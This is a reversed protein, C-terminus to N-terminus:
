IPKNESVTADKFIIECDVSSEAANPYMVLHDSPLTKKEAIFEHLDIVLDYWTNMKLSDYAVTEGTEVDTFTVDKQYMDKNTTYGSFMLKLGSNEGDQFESSKIYIKATFYPKTADTITIRLRETDISSDKGNVVKYEKVIEGNFLVTNVSSTTADGDAMALTGRHDTIATATFKAYVTFDSTVNTLTAEVDGGMETVWKEFTFMQTSTFAKEPIDNNVCTEGEKVVVTKITIGEDDCFTVTYHKEEMVTSEPLEKGEDLTHVGEGSTKVGAKVLINKGTFSQGGNIKDILANYHEDTAITIPYDESGFWDFATNQFIEESFDERTYLVTSNLVNYLNGKVNNSVTAYTYVPTAATSDVIVAVSVFDIKRNSELIGVVCGNAYYFGDEEYIKNEDVKLKYCRDESIGFYSNESVGDFITKSTLVFYLEVKNESDNTCIKGYEEEGMKVRFRLGGNDNLKLSVGDVMEFTDTEASAPYFNMTIILCLVSFVFSLLILAYKKLVKNM